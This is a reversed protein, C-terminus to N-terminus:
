RAEISLDVTADIARFDTRRGITTKPDISFHTPSNCVGARARRTKWGLICKTRVGEKNVDAQKTPRGNFEGM